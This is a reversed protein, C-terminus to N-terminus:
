CDLESVFLNSARKYSSFKKQAGTLINSGWGIQGWFVRFIGLGKEGIGDFLDFLYFFALFKRIAPDSLYVKHTYMHLQLTVQYPSDGGIM